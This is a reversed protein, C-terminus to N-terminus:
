GRPLKATPKIRGSLGLLAIVLLGLGSFLPVFFGEVPLPRIIVSRAPNGADYRVQIEHGSLQREYREQYLVLQEGTLETIEYYTLRDSGEIAQQAVEFRYRLRFADVSKPVDSFFQAKSQNIPSEGDPTIDVIEATAQKGHLLLDIQDSYMTLPIAILLLGMVLLFSGFIWKFM